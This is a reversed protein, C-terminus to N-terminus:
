FLNKIKQGFMAKGRIAQMLITNKLTFNDYFESVTLKTSNREFFKAM